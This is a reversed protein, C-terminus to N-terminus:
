PPNPLPPFFVDVVLFPLLFFGKKEPCHRSELSWTWAGDRSNGAVRCGFGLVIRGSVSGEM